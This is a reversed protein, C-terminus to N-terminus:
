GRTGGDGRSRHSTLGTDRPAAMARMRERHEVGRSWAGPRGAAGTLEARAQTPAIGRRVADRLRDGWMGFENHAAPSADSRLGVSGAEDKDDACVYGIVRDDADAVAPCRGPSGTRRAPRPPGGTVTFVVDAEFRPDNRPQPERHM